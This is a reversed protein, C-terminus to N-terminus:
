RNHYPENRLITLSRYIQEFLFLRAMQHTLTLPSLSLLLDARRKVEDSLGYAGGIVLALEGTGDLMHRGLLEALGESTLERGAQDLVVVCAREPLRALLRQGEQERILRVDQKRGGKVEKLEHEALPLYRRIRGAYEEVGSRLWPEAVRGICYMGFRM